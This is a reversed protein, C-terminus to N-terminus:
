ANVKIKSIGEGSVILPSRVIEMHWRPHWRVAAFSEAAPSYVAVPVPEFTKMPEHNKHPGSFFFLPRPFWIM